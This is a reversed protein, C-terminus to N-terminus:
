SVPAPGHGAISRAGARPEGCEPCIPSALGYLLYGCKVCTEEEVTVTLGLGCSCASRGLPAERPVGCRPCELRITRRSTTPSTTAVPGGGDEEGRIRSIVHLIVVALTGTASGIAALIALQWLGGAGGKSAAMVACTLGCIGAALMTLLRVSEFSLRLRALTLMAVHAVTFAVIDFAVIFVAVDDGISNDLLWILVISLTTAVVVMILGVLGLPHAKRREWAAACGMALIAGAGTTACSGVIRASWTWSDHAFVALAALGGSVVIMGLFVYLFARKLQNPTMTPRYAAAKTRAADKTSHEGHSDGAWEGAPDAARIEREEDYEDKQERAVDGGHEGTAATQTRMELLDVARQKHHQDDQLERHSAKAM